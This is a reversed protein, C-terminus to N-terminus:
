KLDERLIKLEELDVVGDGNTDYLEELGTKIAGKGNTQLIVEVRRFLLKRAEEPDLWGNSDLDFKQELETTVPSPLLKWVLKREKDDIQGDNNSDIRESELDKWASLEDADVAGDKNTDARQQWWSDAEDNQTGDFNEEGSMQAWSAAILVASFIFTCLFVQKGKAKM